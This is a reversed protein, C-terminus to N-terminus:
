VPSSASCFGAPVSWSLKESCGSHVTGQVTPGTCPCPESHMGAIGLAFSFLMLRNRIPMMPECLLMDLLLAGPNPFPMTGM